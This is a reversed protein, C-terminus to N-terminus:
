PLPSLCLFVSVFLSKLLSYCTSPLFIFGPLITPLKIFLDPSAARNSIFAALGQIYLSM